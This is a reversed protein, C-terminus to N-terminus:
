SQPDTAAIFRRVLKSWAQSIDGHSPLERGTYLLMADMSLCREALWDDLSTKDLRVAERMRRKIFNRDVARRFNRKSAVVGIRLQRQHGTQVTASQYVLRLPYAKVSEGESFLTQIAKHGKLPIYTKRAPM